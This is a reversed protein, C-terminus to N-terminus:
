GMILKGKILDELYTIVREKISEQQYPGVKRNNISSIDTTYGKELTNNYTARRFERSLRDFNLFEEEKLWENPHKLRVYWGLACSDITRKGTQSFCYTNLCFDEAPVTKLLDLAEQLM